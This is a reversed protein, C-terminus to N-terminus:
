TRFVHVLRLRIAHNRRELFSPDFGVELLERRLRHLLVNLNNADMRQAERGWVGVALDGDALWGQRSEPVRAARDELLRVALAFLIVARNEASVRHTLGRAPDELVVEHGTPGDLSVHLRYADTLTREGVTPVEPGNAPLIRFHREGVTFAVGAKVLRRQGDELELEAGDSLPRVNFGGVGDLPLSLDADPGTGVRLSAEPVTVSAGTELVELRWAPAEVPVVPATSVVRLRSRRGLRLIQGARVLGDGHLRADDIWTGNTSGRDEVRIAGREIWVRAHNWSITDESLVLANEPGRGIYLPREGLPVRPHAQHLEEGPEPLLELYLTPIM